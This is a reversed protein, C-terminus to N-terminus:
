PVTTITTLKFNNKRIVYDFIVQVGEHKRGLENPQYLTYAIGYLKEVHGKKNTYGSVIIDPKTSSIITWLRKNGNLKVLGNSFFYSVSKIYDVITDNRYGCLTCEITDLCLAKLKVTDNSLIYKSTKDWTRLLKTSDTKTLNQGHIVVYFMFLLITTPIQKTTM